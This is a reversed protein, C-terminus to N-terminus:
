PLLKLALRFVVNVLSWSVRSHYFRLLYILYIVHTINPQTARQKPAVIELKDFCSQM